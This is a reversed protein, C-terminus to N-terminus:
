AAERLPALADHLSALLPQNALLVRSDGGLRLRGAMFAGQASLRGAQVAAATEADCTFTVDPREAPGTELRVGDPGFAVHWTVVHAPGGAGEIGTVSQQLVFPEEPRQAQLVEDGAVVARAAELWEPSLYAPMPRCAVPTSRARDPGPGRSHWLAPAFPETISAADPFDGSKGQDSAGVHNM